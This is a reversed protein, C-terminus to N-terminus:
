DKREEEPLNDFKFGDLADLKELKELILDNKFFNALTSIRQLGDVIELNGNSTDSLFLMPTPYGLLLSEIFRAQRYNDWILENRQYDPRIFIHDNYNKVLYEVPYDRTDYSITQQLRKIQKKANEINIANDVKKNDNKM